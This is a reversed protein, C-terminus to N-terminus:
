GREIISLESTLKKKKKTTLLRQLEDTIDNFINYLEKDESLGKKSGFEGPIVTFNSNLLEETMEGVGPIYFINDGNKDKDIANIRLINGQWLLNYSDRQICGTYIWFKQFMKFYNEAQESIDISVDPYLYGISMAILISVDPSRGNLENFGKLRYVKNRDLNKVYEFMTSVSFESPIPEICIVGSEELKRSASVYSNHVLMSDIVSNDSDCFNIYDCYEPILTHNTPNFKCFKLDVTVKEGTEQFSKKYSELLARLKQTLYPIIYKSGIEKYLVVVDSM